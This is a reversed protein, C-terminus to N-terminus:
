EPCGLDDRLGAGRDGAAFAACADGGARGRGRSRCHRPGRGSRHRGRRPDRGAAALLPARAPPRAATLLADPHGGPYRRDPGAGWADDAAGTGGDIEIMRSHDTEFLVRGLAETGRNVSDSTRHFQYPRHEQYVYRIGNDELLACAQQDTAAEGVAYLLDRDLDSYAMGAVPLRVDQGFLAYLHAAGSFPSALVTGSQDMQPVYREFLAREDAQLFRGRGPYDEALNKAANDLRPP